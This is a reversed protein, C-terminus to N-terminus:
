VVYSNGAADSAVANGRDDVTGGAKFAFGFDATLLRRSELSEIANVISAARRTGRVRRARVSMLAEKGRHSSRTFSARQGRALCTKLSIKILGSRIRGCAAPPEQGPRRN